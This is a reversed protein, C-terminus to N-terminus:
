IESNKSKEFNIKLGTGIIKVQTQKMTAMTSAIPSVVAKATEPRDLFGVERSNPPAKVKSPKLEAIPAHKPARGNVVNECFTPITACVLTTLLNVIKKPDQKKTNALKKGGIALKM